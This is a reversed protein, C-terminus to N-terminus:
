PELTKRSLFWNDTPIRPCAICREIEDNLRDRAVAIENDLVTQKKPGYRDISARLRGRIVKPLLFRVGFARKKRSDFFDLVSNRSRASINRTEFDLEGDFKKDICVFSLVKEVTDRPSCLDAYDVVLFDDGLRDQYAAIDHAIQSRRIHYFLPHWLNRRRHSELELSQAFSADEIFMRRTMSYESIARDVPDRVLCIFKCPFNKSFEFIEERASENWLYDVSADILWKANPNHAYNGFYQDINEPITKLFGDIAPGQWAKDRFDGFFKPEKEKGLVMDKHRGLWNALSTTGAKATGVIFLFAREDSPM